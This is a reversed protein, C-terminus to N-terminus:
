WKLILRLRRKYENILREKMESGKIKDLEIIGLYRCGEQEVEKLVEGDPLKIGECRAVKGRELNLIGCKKLGFEMGIDTSFTHCTSVLSDIQHGSKGFLKLDDMFLLYNLKYEKGGWDYSANVKRLILSLPFMSVVFLLPSLSDGQFIGRKAEVDGLDEGSATLSLKWQDMSKQIFNIVNDAIGAMQMCEIIGSHPMFDYVKKYDIWAMALNTRRKKCDRLITKDILLQGKKGRCRRRCGKQEQPLLSGRELYTYMEEAIMGTFLKWIIPLCTIPRYNGM